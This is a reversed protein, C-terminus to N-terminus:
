AGHLLLWLVATWALASLNPRYVKFLRNRAAEVLQTAAQNEAQAQLFRLWLAGGGRPRGDGELILKACWSCSSLWHTRLTSARGRRRPRPWRRISPRRCYVNSAYVAKESDLRADYPLRRICQPRASESCDSADPRDADNSKSTSLMRFAHTLIGQNRESTGRDRGEVDCVGRVKPKCGDSLTVASDVCSSSSSFCQSCVTRVCRLAILLRSWCVVRKKQAHTQLRNM